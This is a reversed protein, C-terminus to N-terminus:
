KKRPRQPVELEYLFLNLIELPSMPPSHIMFDDSGPHLHFRMGRKENNHSPLNLDYRIFRTPYGDPFRMEFNFGIIASPKPTEDILIAFDFWSRDYKEFHPIERLRKFNRQGGTIEWTNKGNKESKSLKLLNHIESINTKLKGQNHATTLCKLIKTRLIKASRITTPTAKWVRDQIEECIKQWNDSDKM